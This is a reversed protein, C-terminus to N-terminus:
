VIAGTAVGTATAQLPGSSVHQLGPAYFPAVAAARGRPPLEPPQPAAAAPTGEFQSYMRPSRFVIKPVAGSGGGGGGGSRRLYCGLCACMGMGCMAIFIGAVIGTGLSSDGASSAAAAGAQQPAPPPM